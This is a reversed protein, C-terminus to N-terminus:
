FSFRVYLQLFSHGTLRLRTQVRADPPGRKGTGGRVARTELLDSVM